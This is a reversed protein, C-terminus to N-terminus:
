RSHCASTRRPRYPYIAVKSNRSPWGAEAAAVRATEETAVTAVARVVALAAEMEARAQKAAVQSEGRRRSAESM